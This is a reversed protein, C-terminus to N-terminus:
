PHRRHRPRRGLGRSRHPQQAPERKPQHCRDAGPHAPRNQFLPVGRDTRLRPTEAEIGVVRQGKEKDEIFLFPYARIYAPIYAGPMWAGNPDVFLNQGERVGLLAVPLPADGGSFLIPYYLAAAEIEELGLAVFTLGAAFGYGSTPDLRLNAHQVSDLAVIQRHLLPLTGALPTSADSPMGQRRDIL